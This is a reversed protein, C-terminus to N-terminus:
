ARRCGAEEAARLMHFLKLKFSRDMGGIVYDMMPMGAKQAAKPDKWGFDDDVLRTFKRTVTVKKGKKKITVRQEQEKVTDEKPTREYLAWLYRDVCTDVIACEEGTEIPSVAESSGVAKTDGPVLDSPNVMAVQVPAPETPPAQPLDISTPPVAPEPKNVAIPADAGAGAFSLEAIAVDTQRLADSLSSSTQPREANEPETYLSPAGIDTSPAAGTNLIGVPGFAALLGIVGTALIALRSVPTPAKLLRRTNMM